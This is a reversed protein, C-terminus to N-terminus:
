NVLLDAVLQEIKSTSLRNTLWAGAETDEHETELGAERIVSIAIKLSVDADTTVWAGTGTFYDAEQYCSTCIECSINVSVVTYPDNDRYYETLLRFRNLAGHKYVNTIEEAIWESLKDIDNM